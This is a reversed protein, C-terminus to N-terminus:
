RVRCVYLPGKTGTSLEKQWLGKPRVAQDMHDPQRRIRSLAKCHHPVSLMGAEIGLNRDTAEYKDAVVFIRGSFDRALCSVGAEAAEQEEEKFHQRRSGDEADLEPEGFRRDGGVSGHHPLGGVRPTVPLDRM